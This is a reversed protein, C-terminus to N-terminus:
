RPALKEYVESLKEEEAVKWGGRLEQWPSGLDKLHQHVRCM